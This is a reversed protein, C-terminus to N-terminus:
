RILPSILVAAFVLLSAATSAILGGRCLLLGSVTIFLYAVPILLGMALFMTFPDPQAAILLVAAVAASTVAGQHTAPFYRM